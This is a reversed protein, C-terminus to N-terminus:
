KKKNREDFSRVLNAKATISDPKANVAKKYSEEVKRAREAEPSGSNGKDIKNINKVSQHAQGGRCLFRRADQKRWNRLFCMQDFRRGQPAQGCFPHFRKDSEKSINHRTM